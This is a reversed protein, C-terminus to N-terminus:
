EDDHEISVTGVTNGNSDRLSAPHYEVDGRRLPNLAETLSFVEIPTSQEAIFKLTKERAEDDNDAIFNYIHEHEYWGDPQEQYITIVRPDTHGREDSWYEIWHLRYRM